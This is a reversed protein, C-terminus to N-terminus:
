RKEKKEVNLRYRGDGVVEIPIEYHLKEFTAKIKWVENYFEQNTKLGVDTHDVPALGNNWLKNLIRHPTRGVQYKKPRKHHDYFLEGTEAIFWPVTPIDRFRSYITGLDKYLKKFRKADIISVELIDYGMQGTLKELLSQHLDREWYVKNHNLPIDKIEIFRNAYLSGLANLSWILIPEGANLHYRTMEENTWPVLSDGHAQWEQFLSYIMPWFGKIQDLSLSYIYERVSEPINNANEHNM